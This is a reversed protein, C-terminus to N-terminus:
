RGSKWHTWSFTMLNADQGMLALFTRELLRMLRRHQEHLRNAYEQDGEDCMVGRHTIDNRINVFTRMDEETVIQAPYEKFIGEFFRLGQRRASLRNIESLKDQMLLREHEKLFMDEKCDKLTLRIAKTVRKFRSREMISASTLHRSYLIELAMWTKLYQMELFDPRFNTRYFQLALQLGQKQGQEQDSLIPMCRNMFEQLHDHGNHWSAGKPNGTLPLHSRYNSAQWQGDVLKEVQPEVIEVFRREAFSLLLTMAVLPQQDIYDWPNSMDISEPLPLVGDASWISETDLSSMEKLAEQGRPIPSLKFPGCILDQRLPLNLVGFVFRSQVM